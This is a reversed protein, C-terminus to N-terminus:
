GRLRVVWTAARSTPVFFVSGVAGILGETVDSAGEGGDCAAESVFGGPVPSANRLELTPGEPRVVPGAAYLWEHRFMRILSLALRSVALAIVTGLAPEHATKEKRDRRGSPLPPAARRRSFADRAPHQGTPSWGVRRRLAPGPM